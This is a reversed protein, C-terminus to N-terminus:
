ENRRTFIALFETIEIQGAVKRKTTTTVEIESISLAETPEASKQLSGSIVGFENRLGSVYDGIVRISSRGKFPRAAGRLTLIWMKSADEAKLMSLWINDPLDDSIFNMAPSWLMRRKIYQDYYDVSPRHVKDLRDILKQTDGHTTQMGQLSQAVRGIESGTYVSELLLVVWILFLLIFGLTLWRQVPFTFTKERVHLEKPLLNIEIM